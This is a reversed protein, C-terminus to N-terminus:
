LQKKKIYVDQLLSIGPPNTTMGSGEEIMAVAEEEQTEYIDDLDPM